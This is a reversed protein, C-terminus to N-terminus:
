KIKYKKYQFIMNVMYNFITHLSHIQHNFTNNLALLNLTVKLNLNVFQTCLMYKM